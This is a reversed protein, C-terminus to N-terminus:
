KLRRSSELGGTAATSMPQIWGSGGLLIIEIIIDFKKTLLSSIIGDWSTNVPVFKVPMEQTGMAKAMEKAVDIDFGVFNGKQDTMEFPMYGAEFGVM